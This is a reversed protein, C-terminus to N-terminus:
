LNIQYVKQSNLLYIIKDKESVAIDELNDFQQSTFQRIINGKRDIIIIRKQIPELIYIHSLSSSTIIKRADKIKPFINLTLQDQYKGIYFRLLNNESDLVWISGDVAISKANILLDSKAWTQGEAWESKKIFPYKIIEGSEQNLAYFSSNFISFVEYSFDKPKIEVIFDEKQFNESLIPEEIEEMKNLPWLKEEILEKLTEAEDKLPFDDDILASAEEWANQLLLNAEEEDKFILLNDAQSVKAKIEELSQSSRQIEEERKNEFILSGVLLILIFIIIISIKKNFILSRGKGKLEKFLGSIKEPAGKIDGLFVQSFAIMRKVTRLFSNLYDKFLNLKLCPKKFNQKEEAKEPKLKKLFEPFSPSPLKKSIKPRSFKLIILFFIGSLESLTKKRYKFMRKIDKKGSSSAINEILNEEQFYKSVEETLVMIKDDELLKGSIINEFIQLSGGKSIGLNQGIDIVEKDRSFLIRINGKKALNIKREKESSSFLSFVILNINELWALNEEEAGQEILFENGKNLAKRLKKEPPQWPVSYYEKKIVSALNNLLKSSFVFGKKLEAIIYLNGLKEEDPNEPEYCFTDYITEKKGKRWFKALSSGAGPSFHFEIVEM